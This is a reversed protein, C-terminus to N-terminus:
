QPPAGARRRASRNPLHPSRLSVPDPKPLSATVAMYPVLAQPALVSGPKSNGTELCPRWRAGWRLRQRKLTHLLRTKKGLRVASPPAAPQFYRCNRASIEGIPRPAPLWGGILPRAASFRILRHRLGVGTAPGPGQVCREANPPSSLPPRRRKQSCFLVNESTSSTCPPDPRPTV